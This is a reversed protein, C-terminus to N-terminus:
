KKFYFKLNYNFFRHGNRISQSLFSLSLKLCLSLNWGYNTTRYDNLKTITTQYPTTFPTNSPFIAGLSYLEYNDTLQWLGSSLLGRNYELIVNKTQIFQTHTQFSINLILAFFVVKLYSLM